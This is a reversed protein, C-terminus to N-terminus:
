EIEEKKSKFFKEIKIEASRLGLLVWFVVFAVMIAAWYHGVGVAIGIGAVIWSSAATTLGSVNRGGQIITGACLFGVGTVIAAIIRSPDVAGTHKYIDFVHYSTLVLLTSGVGILIHTRMGADKNRVFREAGIMGSLFVTLIIKFLIEIIDNLLIGEVM